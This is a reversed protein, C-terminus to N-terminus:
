KYRDPCATTGPTRSRRHHQSAERKAARPQLLRSRESGRRNLPRRFPLSWCDPPTTRLLLPLPRTRLEPNPTRLESNPSTVTQLKTQFNLIFLLLRGCPLSLFIQLCQLMSFPARILET